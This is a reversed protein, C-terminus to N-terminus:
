PGYPQKTAFQFSYFLFSLNKNLFLYISCLTSQKILNIQYGRLEGELSGEREKADKGYEWRRFWENSEELETNRKELRFIDEEQKLVVKSSVHLAERLRKIEATM